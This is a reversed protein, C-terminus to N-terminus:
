AGVVNLGKVGDGVARIAEAGQVGLAMPPRLGVDFSGTRVL